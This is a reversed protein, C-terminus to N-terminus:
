NSSCDGELRGTAPEFGTPALKVRDCPSDDDRVIAGTADNAVDANEISPDQYTSRSASQAAKQAAGDKQEGIAKAFHADTTQLYHRAAVTPSNGIWACVVHIPFAEALETERTARLNQFLKPWPLLGAKLIIRTLQTRLNSNSDRYRTIVYESGPEAAEFVERFYSLLEPFIPVWRTAKGAHHETKSAHVLFRNRSWDVDKWKLRLHESPCRLGGYRSLAFLLRWQADPCAEIVKAAHERSIFYEREPNPQVQCAIGDFPNRLLLRKRVAARFFQKARGVFRRATNPGLGAGPMASKNSGDPKPRTLYRFFDEADAETVDALEAPRAIFDILLGRARKLAFITRPKADTRRTIYDDLFGALGGIAGPDRPKVLGLKVLRRYLASKADLKAAWDLAEPDGAHGRM